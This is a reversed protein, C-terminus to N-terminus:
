RCVSPEAARLLYTTPGGTHESLSSNQEEFFDGGPSLFVGGTQVTLNGGELSIIQLSGGDGDVQFTTANSHNGLLQTMVMGGVGDRAAHGQNAMEVQLELNTARVEADPTFRMTIWDVVQDPNAALHEATYFRAYCGNPVAQATVPGAFITSICITSLALTRKM